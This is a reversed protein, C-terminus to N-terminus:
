ILKQFFYLKWANVYEKRLKDYDQLSYGKLDVPYINKLKKYGKEMFLKNITGDRNLSQIIFPTAAFIRSGPEKYSLLIRFYLKKRFEYIRFFWIFSLYVQVLFTFFPISFNPVDLNVKEKMMEKIYPKVYPYPVAKDFDEFNKLNIFEKLFYSSVALVHERAKFWMENTDKIKDFDAKLKLNTHLEIKDMLDPYKKDLEPFKKKFVKKLAELSGLYSPKYCDALLCLATCCALYAKSTDDILVQREWDEIKEKKIHKILFWELIISMRNFLFRLGDSLPINEIKYDPMLNRVDKGYLIHSAHKMEYYKILTPLNKLKDLRIIKIDFYFEKKSHEYLSYSGVGMRREIKKAINNLLEEKVDGKTILYIDYDNTPEVKDGRIKVGGEGRGFGGVLIISILGNIKKLEEIAINLQEDISDDIWKEKNITYKGM